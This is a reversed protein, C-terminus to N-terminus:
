VFQELARIKQATFNPLDSLIIVDPRQTALSQDFSKSLVIAPDAGELGASQFPALALAPFDTVAENEQANIILVKVPELVDISLEAQDDTQYGGRSIQATVVQSGSDSFRLPAAVIEASRPPLNIMQHNVEGRPTVRISLPIATRAESGVNH